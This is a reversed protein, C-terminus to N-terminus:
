ARKYNAPAHIQHHVVRCFCFANMTGQLYAQGWSIDPCCLMQSRSQVLLFRTRIKFGIGARYLSLHPFPNIEISFQFFFIIQMTRPLKWSATNSVTPTRFSFCHQEARFAKLVSVVTENKYCEIGRIVIIYRNERLHSSLQKWLYPNLTESVKEKSCNKSPASIQIYRIWTNHAFDLRNWFQM